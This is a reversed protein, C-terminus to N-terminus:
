YKIKIEGKVARCQCAMRECGMDGMFDSEEQSYSSLNDMGEQVEIICTGCVGETCAFPIGQEECAEQLSSNDPIEIEDGSNEFILKAM